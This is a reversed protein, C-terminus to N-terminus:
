KNGKLEKVRTEVMKREEAAEGIVNTPGYKLYLEYNKIAEDSNKKKSAIEALGYYLQHSKPYANL